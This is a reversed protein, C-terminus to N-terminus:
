FKISIKIVYKKALEDIDNHVDRKRVNEFLAYYKEKTDPLDWNGRFGFGQRFITNWKTFPQIGNLRLQQYLFVFLILISNLLAKLKDVYLLFLARLIDKVSIFLVSTDDSRRTLTFSLFLFVCSSFLFDVGKRITSPM